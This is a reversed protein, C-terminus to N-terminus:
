GQPRVPAGPSFFKVDGGSEMGLFFGMRSDPINRLFKRIKRLTIPTAKGKSFKGKTQCKVRYCGKGSVYCM